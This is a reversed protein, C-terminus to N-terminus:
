FRKGFKAVNGAILQILAQEGGERDIAVGSRAEANQGGVDVVREVVGKALALDGRDERLEILIVHDQFDIRLELLVRVRQLINVHTRSRPCAREEPEPLEIVVVLPM